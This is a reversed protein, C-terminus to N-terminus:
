AVAACDGHLCAAMHAALAAADDGVGDIFASKRRRLFHLGMVYLGRVATVGGHHVIEGRDSLVPLQLWPYARTFGTAWVVTTIGTDDLRIETDAGAFRLCYPQFAPAPESEHGRSAIFADIRRLLTALKIDAGATTAVLDDAFRAVGAEVDLLRGVVRVGRDALAALDLTSRGPDGVLQLSPQERSIAPDYVQEVTEDFLGMRDLWWLVDRGRYTRPVRTHRGVAITVPRGSRHIEEALQIGTASAGVVLVGGDPLDGPRRYQAPVVQQIRPPVRAAIPPVFPRDSHGTAVVVARAFWTGANTAARFGDGERTLTQVTIGERVPAAFSAAYREFHGVVEAMTMYGDPDPGDYSFGPLRSQWNPTLLRLSDWRESRWREGIRGRELVVHDIGRDTLCRSMALGSQGGGIVVCTVRM